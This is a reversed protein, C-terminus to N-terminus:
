NSESENWEVGATEEEMKRQKKKKLLESPTPRERRAERRASCLSTCARAHATHGRGRRAALSCDTRRWGVTTAGQSSQGDAAVCRECM